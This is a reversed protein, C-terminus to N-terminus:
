WSRAGYESCICSPELCRIYKEHKPCAIVALPSCICGVECAKLMPVARAEPCCVQLGIQGEAIESRASHGRANGLSVISSIALLLALHAM